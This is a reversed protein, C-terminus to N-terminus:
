KIEFEVTVRATVAIQGPALTDPPVSAGGGAEQITNQTMGQYSGGWWSNYWSWWGVQEERIATPAGVQQCLEGAMAEAKEWAARLALARAQDRYKRLETTQFQVNHLHTVGAKLLATMLDEYKSIDRLTVVINKRVWFGDAKFDSSSFYGSRNAYQPTISLYDTQVHQPLIGYEATVALVQRVITDNRTKAQDLDADGIEVGLTLLVEDPVVRVEAEGSVAILGPEQRAPPVYGVCRAGSVFPTTPTPSVEAVPLPANTLVASPFPTADAPPQTQLDTPTPRTSLGCALVSLLAILPWARPFSASTTPM